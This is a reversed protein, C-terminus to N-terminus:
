QGPQSPAPYDPTETNPAAGQDLLQQRAPRSQAPHDEVEGLRDGLRGLLDSGCAQGTAALRHGPAEELRDGGAAADVHQGVDQVVPVIGVGLLDETLYPPHDGLIAPQQQDLLNQRWGPPLTM